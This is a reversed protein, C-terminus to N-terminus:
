STAIKFDIKQVKLFEDEDRDRERSGDVSFYLDPFSLFFFPGFRLPLSFEDLFSSRFRESSSLFVNSDNISPDVLIVLKKFDKEGRLWWQWAIMNTIKHVTTVFDM